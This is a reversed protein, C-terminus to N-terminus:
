AREDPHQDNGLPVETCDPCDLMFNEELTGM